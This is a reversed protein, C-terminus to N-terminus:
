IANASSEGSISDSIFDGRLSSEIEVFIINDPSLSNNALDINFNFRRDVNSFLQATIEFKMYDVINLNCDVRSPIDENTTHKVYYDHNVREFFKKFRKIVFDIKKEIWDVM